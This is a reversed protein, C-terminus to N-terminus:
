SRVYRQNPSRLKDPITQRLRGNELLPKILEQHVYRESKIGLYEQIEGKTRPKGCFELLKEAQDSAQESTGLSTGLSAQVLPLTLTTRDPVDAGFQEEVVPTEYGAKDWAALIDPVGLGAREGVGILNLMKFIVGHIPPM